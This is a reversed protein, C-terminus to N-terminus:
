ARIAFQKHLLELWRSQFLTVDYAKIGQQAEQGMAARKEPSATVDRIASAVSEVSREVIRGNVGDILFDQLGYVRTAVIPLGAAAAEFCVLSFTEYASPLVFLQSSWLYPRIDTQLGVFHIKDALQLKRALKSYEGIEGAHGGIVLLHIGRDSLQALAEFAIKLGKATFSALACFSLVFADDPIGLQRRLTAPEFDAPRRFHATDVPNPIVQIKNKTLAPFTSELERALGHSPVVIKLARRLALPQLLAYWSYTLTRAFRRAASTAIERRHSLFFRPSFHYYCIDCFPFQGDSGLRVGREFGNWAYAGGSLLSYLMMRLFVPRRPLLIKSQILLPSAPLDSDSAFVHIPLHGLLPQLLKFLCAGTSGFNRISTEFVILPLQPM